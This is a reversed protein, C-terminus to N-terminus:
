GKAKEYVKLILFCLKWACNNSTSYPKIMSLWSKLPTLINKSIISHNSGAKMIHWFTSKKFITENQSSCNMWKGALIYVMPKRKKLTFPCIPHSRHNGVKPHIWWWWFHWSFIWWEHTKPLSTEQKKREFVPQHNWINKIKVGIQPLNGNQSINKLRTSVVLWFLNMWFPIGVKWFQPPTLHLAIQQGADAKPHILKTHIAEAEEVNGWHDVQITSPPITKKRTPHPFQPHTTPPFITPNKKM